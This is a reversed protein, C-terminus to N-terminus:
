RRAPKPLSDSWGPRRRSSMTVKSRYRSPVPAEAKLLGHCLLVAAPAQVEAGALEAREEVGDASPAAPSLLVLATGQVMEVGGM